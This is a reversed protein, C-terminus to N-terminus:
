RAVPACILAQGASMMVIPLGLAMARVMTECRERLVDMGAPDMPMMKCTIGDKGVEMTMHCMMPPVTPMMPMMGMMNPMMMNPMMAQPMAAMQPMAMPNMHPMM